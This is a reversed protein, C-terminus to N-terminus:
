VHQHRERGIWLFHVCGPLEPRPFESSFFSFLSTLRNLESERGNSISGRTCEGYDVEPLGSLPQSKNGDRDVIILQGAKETVLLRGDPLFAMAWPEDFSAVPEVDFPQPADASACASVLFASFLLFFRSM